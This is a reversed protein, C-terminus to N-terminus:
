NPDETTPSTKINQNRRGSRSSPPLTKVVQLRRRGFGDTNIVYIGPLNVNKDVIDPDRDLAAVFAIMTGDPSWAPHSYPNTVHVIHIVKGDNLNALCLEFGGEGLCSFLIRNGDPSWAPPWDSRVLEDPSLRTPNAGDADMMSLAPRDNVSSQYLLRAGDPSPLIYDLDSRVVDVLHTLGSGDPHVSYIGWSERGSGLGFGLYYIRNGEPSWVPTEQDINFTGYDSGQTLNTLSGDVGAVFLDRIEPNGAGAHYSIFQRISAPPCCAPKKKKSHQFLSIGTIRRGPMGLFPLSEPIIGGPRYRFIRGPPLAWISYGWATAM